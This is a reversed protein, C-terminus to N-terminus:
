PCQTCCAECRARAQEADCRAAEAVAQEALVQGPGGARQKTREGGLAGIGGTLHAADVTAIEWRRRAAARGRIPVRSRPPHGARPGVRLYRTSLRSSRAHVSPLRHGAGGGQGGRFGARRHVGMPRDDTPVNDGAGWRSLLATSQCRREFVGGQMTVMKVAAEYNGKDTAGTCDSLLLV